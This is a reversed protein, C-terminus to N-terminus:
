YGRWCALSRVEGEWEGGRLDNGEFEDVVVRVGFCDDSDFLWCITGGEFVVAGVKGDLLSTGDFSNDM